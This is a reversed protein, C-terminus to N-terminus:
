ITVELVVEHTVDLHDGIAHAIVRYRGARPGKVAIPIPNSGANLKGAFRFSRESLTEGASVFRLGDPLTIEFAVADVPREAIFDIKVLAVKNEPVRYAKLAPAGRSSWALTGGISLFATLAAAAGAFALPRASALARLWAWPSWPQPPPGVELLRQHLRSAFGDPLAEAGARRCLGISEELGELATGCAACSRAHGRVEAGREGDLEGAAVEHLCERAENCTM